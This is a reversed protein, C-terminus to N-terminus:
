RCESLPRSFIDILEGLDPRGGESEARKVVDAIQHRRETNVRESLDAFVANALAEKGGFHYNVAAMNVGAARTVERLTTHAVGREAFMETAAEIIRKRTELGRDM